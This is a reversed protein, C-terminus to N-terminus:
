EAIGVLWRSDEPCRDMAPVSATSSLHFCDPFV